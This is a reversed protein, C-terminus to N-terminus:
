RAEFKGLEAVQEEQIESSNFESNPRGESMALQGGSETIQIIRQLEDVEGASQASNEAKVNVDKSTSSKPQRIAVAAENLVLGTRPDSGNEIETIRPNKQESWPIATNNNFQYTVGNDQAMPITGETTAQSQPIFSSNSASRGLEWPRTGPPREGRRVTAGIEMYSEPHSTPPSASRVSRTDYESKDGMQHMSCGVSGGLYEERAFNRMPIYTQGELKTIANRMIRIEQLQEDLLSVFEM